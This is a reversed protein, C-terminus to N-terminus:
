MIVLQIALFNESLPRAILKDSLTLQLRKTDKSTLQRKYAIVFADDLTKQADKKTQRHHKKGKRVDNKVQFM